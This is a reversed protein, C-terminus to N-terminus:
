RAHHTGHILLRVAHGHGTRFNGLGVHIQGSAGFAFGARQLFRGGGHFLQARRHGVVGLMRLRGVLEGAFRLAHDGFTTFGHAFHHLGHLADVGAAFLNGVDDTHNIANGELGVDQRQIGGHFCRAGTLMASTKGHHCPFHAGQCAAAGVRGFLDLLEDAGAHSFDMFAIDLCGMRTLGHLLGNGFDAFDGLQDAVDAMGATLLAVAHCLHGLRDRVHVLGRLFISRQHFFHRACGLAQALLGILQHM